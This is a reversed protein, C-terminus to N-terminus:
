KTAFWSKEGCQSRMANMNASARLALPQDRLCSDNGRQPVAAVSRSILLIRLSVGRSRQLRLIMLFLM